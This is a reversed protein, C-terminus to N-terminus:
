PLRHQAWAVEVVAVATLLNPTDDDTIRYRGRGRGAWAAVYCPSGPQAREIQEVVPVQKGGVLWVTTRCFVVGAGGRHQKSM